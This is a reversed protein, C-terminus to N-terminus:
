KINLSIDNKNLQRASDATPKGWKQGGGGGEGGKLIIKFFQITEAEM